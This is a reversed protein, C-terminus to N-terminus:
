RTMGQSKYNDRSAKMTTKMARAVDVKAAAERIIEVYEPRDPLMNKLTKAQLDAKLYELKLMGTGQPTLRALAVSGEFGKQLNVRNKILEGLDIFDKEESRNHMAMLKCAMLDLPSAIKIGPGLAKDPSTIAGPLVKTNSMFTVNVKKAGLQVTYDIQQNTRLTMDHPNNRIYSLESSVAKVDVPATTFFDFDVSQRHGYRLAVATGGYLVFEDPTDKLQPWLELQAAPLIELKPQIFM